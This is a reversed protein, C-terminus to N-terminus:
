KGAREELVFQTASAILTPQISEFLAERKVPNNWPFSISAMMYQRMEGDCASNVAIAITQADSKQDDLQRAARRECTVYVDRAALKEQDTAPPPTTSVCASFLMASGGAIIMLRVRAM